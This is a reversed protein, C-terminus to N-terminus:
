DVWTWVNGRQVDGITCYSVGYLIAFEKRSIRQSRIDKVADITLKTTSKRNKKMMDIMNYQQTATYLHSPRVCLRNDCIHTVVKGTIDDGKCQAVYRHALMTKGQGIGAVGYAQSNGPPANTAGTWLWCENSNSHHKVDVHQWFRAQTELELETM